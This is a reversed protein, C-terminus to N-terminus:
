GLLGYVLEESYASVLLGHLFSLCVLQKHKGLLKTVRKFSLNINIWSFRWEAQKVMVCVHSIVVTKHIECVFAEDCLRQQPHQGNPGLSMATTPPCRTCGSLLSRGIFNLFSVILGQEPFFREKNCHIPWVDNRGKYIYWTFIVPTNLSKIQLYEITNM